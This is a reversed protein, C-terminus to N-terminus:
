WFLEDLVSRVHAPMQYGILDASRNLDLHPRQNRSGWEFSMGGQPRMPDPGYEGSYVNGFLGGGRNLSSTISAPYHKGHRGASQRAFGKATATGAKVAERVVGQFEKKAKPAIDRLDRELDALSGTVRIANSV